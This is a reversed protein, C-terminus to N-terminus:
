APTKAAYPAKAILKKQEAWVLALRLARRTKLITPQAKPKGNAKRTVGKSANFSAIQKETIAAASADAGLHEYAIALDNGYSSVTSPTHGADRLSELWGDGIARLSGPTAAPTEKAAPKAKAKPARGKKPAPTDAVPVAEPVTAMEAATDRAAAREAWDPVEAVTPAPKKSRKPKPPAPADAPNPLVVTTGADIKVEPAGGEVPTKPAKTTRASKSGTANKM